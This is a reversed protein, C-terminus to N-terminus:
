DSITTRLLLFRSAKLYLGDNNKCIKITIDASIKSSQVNKQFMFIAKPREYFIAFDRSYAMLVVNYNDVLFHLYTNNQLM